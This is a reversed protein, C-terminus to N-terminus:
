IALVPDRTSLGPGFLCAISTCAGLEPTVTLCGTLSAFGLSEETLVGALAVRVRVLDELDAVLPVVM